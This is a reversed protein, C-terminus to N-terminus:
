PDDYYQYNHGAQNAQSDYDAIVHGRVHSLALCGEARAGCGEASLGLAKRL